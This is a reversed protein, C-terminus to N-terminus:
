GKSRARAIRTGDTEGRARKWTDNDPAKALRVGNERAQRLEALLERLLETIVDLREDTGNVPATMQEIAGM